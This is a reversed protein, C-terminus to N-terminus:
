KHDGEQLNYMSLEQFPSANSTSLSFFFSLISESLNFLPLDRLSYEEIISEREREIILIGKLDPRKLENRQKGEDKEEGM